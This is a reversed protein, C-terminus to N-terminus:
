WDNRCPLATPTWFRLFLRPHSPTPSLMGLLPFMASLSRVDFLHGRESRVGVVGSFAGYVATRQAGFESSFWARNGRPFLLLFHLMPAPAPTWGQLGLFRASGDAEQLGQGGDSGGWTGFEAGIEGVRWGKM